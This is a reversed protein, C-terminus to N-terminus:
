AKKRRRCFRGRTQPPATAVPAKDKEKPRIGWSWALKWVENMWKARAACGCTPPLGISQKVMIYRDETVGVTALFRQAFTGPEFGEVSM